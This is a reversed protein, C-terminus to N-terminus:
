ILIATRLTAIVPLTAQFETVTGAHGATGREGEAAAQVQQNRPEGLRDVGTWDGSAFCITWFLFYNGGLAAYGAGQGNM